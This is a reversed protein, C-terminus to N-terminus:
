VRFLAPLRIPVTAALVPETFRVLPPGTVMPATPLVVPQVVVPLEVRVAVPLVESMVTEFATLQPLLESSSLAPLFTAILAAMVPPVAPSKVTKALPLRVIPAAPTIEPLVM